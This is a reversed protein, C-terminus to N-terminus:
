DSQNYGVYGLNRQVEMATNNNLIGEYQDRGSRLSRDFIIMRCTPCTRQRHFWAQICDYHFIHRSDCPLSVIKAKSNTLSELCVVCEDQFTSTDIVNENKNSQQSIERILNCNSYPEESVRRNARQMENSPRLHDRERQQRVRASRNPHHINNRDFKKTQAM